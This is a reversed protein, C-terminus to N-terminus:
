NQELAIRIRKKLQLIRYILKQLVITKSGLYLFFYRFSLEKNNRLFEIGEKAVRDNLEYFGIEIKRENYIKLIYALTEKSCGYKDAFFLEISHLGRLFESREKFSVQHTASKNLIRYVGSSYNFYKVKSHGSIFLFLPFDGVTWKDCNIENYYRDVLDKRLTVTLTKIFIGRLLDDYIEGEPIEWGSNYNYRKKFVGTNQFLVDADTHVMGFEPNAELFDIQKQLKYHDTWYDDGECIAIYKGTCRELTKASNKIMGINEPNYTAVITNPYKEAYGAVIQATNDSSCDEGVLLQVVFGTKQMLVSEIAQSIYEEHNYTIMCVSVLPNYSIEISTNKTINM